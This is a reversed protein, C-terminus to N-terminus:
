RTSHFRSSFFVYGQLLKHFEADQKGFREIFVQYTLEDHKQLFRELDVEYSSSFVLLDKSIGFFRKTDDDDSDQKKALVEELEKNLEKLSILRAKLITNM